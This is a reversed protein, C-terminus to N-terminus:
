PTRPLRQRVTDLMFAIDASDGSHYARALRTPSGSCGRFHAVVVIWGRSRFHAAIAQAYNSGSSGELGHFLILAPAGPAQPLAQWDLPSIWRAAASGGADLLASEVPPGACPKNPFLGPGTWDFDIFDKDPTDVRDRAFAVRHYRAFLAAHITQSHGGPLWSPVPCPSTDLKRATM